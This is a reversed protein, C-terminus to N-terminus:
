VVKDEFGDSTVSQQRPRKVLKHILACVLPMPKELRSCKRM